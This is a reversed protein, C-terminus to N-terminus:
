ARPKARFIIKWERLIGLYMIGRLWYVRRWKGELSNPQFDEVVMPPITSDLRRRCREFGGWCRLTATFNKNPKHLKKSTPEASVDM